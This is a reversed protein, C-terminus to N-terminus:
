RCLGSRLESQAPNPRETRLLDVYNAAQAHHAPLHTIRRTRIWGPQKRARGQLIARKPFEHLSRRSRIVASCHVTSLPYHGPFAPSLIHRDCARTAPSVRVTADEVSADRLLQFRACMTADSGPRKRVLRPRARVTAYSCPPMAPPTGGCLPPGSRGSRGLATAPPCHGTTLPCHGTTPFQLSHTHSPQQVLYPFQCAGNKPPVGPGAIQQWRFTSRTM